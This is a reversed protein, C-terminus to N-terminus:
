TSRHVLLESSDKRTVCTNRTPSDLSPILPESRSRAPLRNLFDDDCSPFFCSELFVDAVRLQKARKQFDWVTLIRGLPQQLGPYIEGFDCHYCYSDIALM